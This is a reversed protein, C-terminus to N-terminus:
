MMKDSAGEWVARGLTSFFFCLFLLFDKKKLATVTPKPNPPTEELPKLQDMYM